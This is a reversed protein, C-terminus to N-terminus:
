AAKKMADIRKSEISRMAQIVQLDDPFRKAHREMRKRKNISQKALMSYAKCQEKNRGYKKNKNGSDAM